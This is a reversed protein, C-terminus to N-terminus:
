EEDEFEVDKLQSHSALESVWSATAGDYSWHIVSSPLLCSGSQDFDVLGLLTDVNLSRAASAISESDLAMALKVADIAIEASGHKYGLLESSTSLFTDEWWLGLVAGDEDTLSSEFPYKKDWCAVTYFEQIESGEKLATIDRVFLDTTMLVCMSLSLEHISGETFVKSFTKCDMFCIVCQVEGDSLAKVAKTIDPNVSELRGPDTYKLDNEKCYDALVEAFRDAEESQTALLGVSTIGKETWVDALAEIRSEYDYSCNFCYEYPGNALWEETEANVCFCPVESKECIEAVANVTMTGSSCIMVDVNDEEILKTAAIKAGEKTSESDAVVFRVKLKRELTDIYLGGNENIAAVAAEETELSGEGYDALDGTLPCVCGITIFNKQTAYTGSEGCGSVVACTMVALLLCALITKIRTTKKM